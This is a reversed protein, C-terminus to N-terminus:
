KEIQAPSNCNTTESAIMSQDVSAYSWFVLEYLILVDASPSTITLHIYQGM